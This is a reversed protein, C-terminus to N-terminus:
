YLNGRVLSVKECQNKKKDLSLQSAFPPSFTYYFNYFCLLFPSFYILLLMLSVFIATELFLAEGM